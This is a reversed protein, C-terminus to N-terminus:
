WIFLRSLQKGWPALVLKHRDVRGFSLRLGILPQIKDCKLLSTSVITLSLSISSTESLDSFCTLELM